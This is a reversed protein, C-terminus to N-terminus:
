EVVSFEGEIVARELQKPEPKPEPKKRRYPEVLERAPPPVLIGSEAAWRIIKDVYKAFAQTSLPKTSYGWVRPLGPIRVPIAEEGLFAEKCAIHVHEPEYGTADSITEYVVGWLYANQEKTRNRKHPKVEIEMVPEVPLASVLALARGRIEEDRLVFRRLATM